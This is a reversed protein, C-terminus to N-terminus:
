EDVESEKRRLLEGRLLAAYKYDQEDLAECLKEQILAEEWKTIDDGYIEEDIM